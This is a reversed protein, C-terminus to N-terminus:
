SPVREEVLCNILLRLVDHAKRVEMEHQLKPLAHRYTQATEDFHGVQARDIWNKQKLAEWQQKKNGSPQVSNRVYELAVYLIRYDVGAVGFLACAADFNVDQKRLTVIRQAFSKGRPAEIGNVLLRAKGFRSRITLNAPELTVGIELSTGDLALQQIFPGLRVPFYNPVAIALTSNAEDLFRKAQDRVEAQDVAEIIGSLSLFRRIEGGHELCVLELDFEDALTEVDFINGELSGRWRDHRATM